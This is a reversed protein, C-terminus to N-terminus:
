LSELMRLAARYSNQRYARVSHPFPLGEGNVQRTFRFKGRYRYLRISM